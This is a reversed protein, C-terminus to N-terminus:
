KKIYRDQKNKQLDKKNCIFDVILKIKKVKLYM